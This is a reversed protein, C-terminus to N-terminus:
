GTFTKRDAKLVEGPVQDPLKVSGPQDCLIFVKQIPGSSAVLDLWTALQQKYDNESEVDGPLGCLLVVTAQPPFLPHSAATANRVPPASAQSQAFLLGGSVLAMLSQIFVWWVAVRRRRAQSQGGM